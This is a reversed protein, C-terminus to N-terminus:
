KKNSLYFVSPVILAGLAVLSPVLYRKLNINSAWLLWRMRNVSIVYKTFEEKTGNELESIYGPEEHSCLTWRAAVNSLWSASWRDFGGNIVEYTVQPIELHHLLDIVVTYMTTALGLSRYNDSVWTTAVEYKTPTQFDGIAYGIVESDFDGDFRARGLSSVAIIGPLPPTSPASTSPSLYGLYYEVTEEAPLGGRERWM